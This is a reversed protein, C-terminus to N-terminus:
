FSWTFSFNFGYHPFRFIIQGSGVMKEIEGLDKGFM